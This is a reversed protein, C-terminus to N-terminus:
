EGSGAMDGLSTGVSGGDADVTSDIEELDLSRVPLQGISQWDIGPSVSSIVVGSESGGDRRIGGNAEVIARKLEECRRVTLDLSDRFEKTDIDVWFPVEREVPEAQGYDVILRTNEQNLKDCKLALEQKENLLNHFRRSLDACEARWRGQEKVAHDYKEELDELQNKLSNNAERHSSLEAQLGNILLLSTNEKGPDADFALREERQRAQEDREACRQQWLTVSEKLRDNEVSLERNQNNCASLEGQLRGVEEELGNARQEAEFDQFRLESRAAAASLKCYSIEENLRMVQSSLDDREKSIHDNAANLSSVMEGYQDCSKLLKEKEERLQLLEREYTEIFGELRRNTEREAQYLAEKAEIERQCEAIRQEYNEAVQVQNDVISRNADNAEVLQSQLRAVEGNLDRQSTVVIELDFKLATNEEQLQKVKKELERREKEQKRKNEYFSPAHEYLLKATEHDEKQRLEIKQKLADRELLVENLEARLRQYDERSLKLRDRVKEIEKDLFDGEDVERKLNEELEQVKQHFQKQIHMVDERAIEYQRQWEAREADVQLYESKLEVYKDAWNKLKDDLNSEKQDLGKDRLLLLLMWVMSSMAIIGLGILEGNM